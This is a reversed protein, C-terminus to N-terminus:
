EAEVDLRFAQKGEQWRFSAEGNGRDRMRVKTAGHMCSKGDRDCGFKFPETKGMRITILAGYDKSEQTIKCEGNYLVKKATTNALHCVGTDRIKQAQATEPSGVLVAAGLASAAVLALNIYKM